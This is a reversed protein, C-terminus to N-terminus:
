KRALASAPALQYGRGALGQAWRIVETITVPYAFGAGLARGNKLAASELSLLQRDIQDASLQEDVVTDASARPLGTMGKHAASGDDLFGLGRARLAGTFITMAADTNVFRGGLYNTVGFYGTARSLLWELRRTTEERPANAMLTSPGPDNNPYDLPEMPIELLVEHGDARALDIWGQLGEAYPVFSLTVDAPLREIAARTAAANLGLGGVVLAVKPKGNDHFPRAYGQFPTKGDKAIVPMPGAPSPASLGAIPAPTLSQASVHAPPSSSSASPAGGGLTGGQPLTIVAQGSVSPGGAGAAAAIQAGLPDQAGPMVVDQGPQLTALTPTLPQGDAGLKSRLVGPAPAAHRGQDLSVKVVPAGAHPDGIVSILVVGAILFLAAAGAAAVAPHALMPPLRTGAGSAPAREATATAPRRAFTPAKLM